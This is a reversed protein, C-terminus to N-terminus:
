HAEYMRGQIGCHYRWHIEPNARTPQQKQTPAVRRDGMKALDM